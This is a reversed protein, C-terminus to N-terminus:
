GGFYTNVDSVETDNLARNWIIVEDIRGEFPRGMGPNEGIYVPWSNELLAGTKPSTGQSTGDVYIESNSGDYVGVLHHWGSNPTASGENHSIVTGGATFRFRYSATTSTSDDLGIMFAHNATDTGIAKSLIRPDLGFITGEYNYWASITIASGPVSFTGVDIYDNIGDFYYCGDGYQCNSSTQYAGSATGDNSGVSDTADNDLNWWSVIGTEWYESCDPDSSCGASACCTGDSTCIATNSCTGLSCSDTTCEDSDDCSGCNEGCVDGCVYGLSACTDTCSSVCMGTANCTLGSGCASCNVTEGCVSQNGCEFGLSSCTETCGEECLGSSNCSYTPGYLVTCDGCGSSAGCIAWDGCEYGLSNCTEVCDEECLGSANCSYGLGCSGCNQDGGCITHIDCEYNFTSCTDTCGAQEVCTTGSCVFSANPCDGCNTSFACVLQNGCEFGLSSCTEGCTTKKKIKIIDKVDGTVQKGSELEFVPSIKIETLESANIDQLIFVFTREELQEMFIPLEIIESNEGDEFVFKLAIFKGEGANRKFRVTASTDNDSQVSKLELDLTLKGLSVQEAGQRVVKSVVGWVIGVAVLVLVIMLLSAVITSLGKKRRMVERKPLYVM